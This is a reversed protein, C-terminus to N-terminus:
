AAEERRINAEPPFAERRRLLTNELAVAARTAFTSAINIEVTSFPLKKDLRSANVVGLPEGKLTCLPLCLFTKIPSRNAKYFPDETIDSTWYPTGKELVRGPIGEGMHYSLNMEHGAAPGRVEQTVLLGRANDWVMLSAQDAKVIALIGELIATFVAQSSRNSSMFVATACSDMEVTKHLEEINYLRQIMLGMSKAIFQLFKLDEASFANRSHDGGFLVGFQEGDSSMVPVCVHSGFDFKEIPCSAETAANKLHFVTKHRMAPCEDATIEQKLDRRNNQPDVIAQMLRQNEGMLLIRFWSESGGRWDENLHVVIRRLTHSLDSLSSVVNLRQTIRTLLKMRHIRKESSADRARLLNV